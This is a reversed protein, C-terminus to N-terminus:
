FMGSPHLVYVVALEGPALEYQRHAEHSFHEAEIWDAMNPVPGNGSGDTDGLRVKEPILGTSTHEGSERMGLHSMDVEIRPTADTDTGTPADTSIYVSLLHGHTATVHPVDVRM